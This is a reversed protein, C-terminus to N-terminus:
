ANRALSARGLIAAVEAVRGRKADAMPLSLIGLDWHGPGLAWDRSGVGRHGIGLAWYEVGWRWDRLRLGKGVLILFVASFVIFVNKRERSNSLPCYRVISLFAKCCNHFDCRRTAPLRQLLAPATTDPPGGASSICGNSPLSASAWFSAAMVDM